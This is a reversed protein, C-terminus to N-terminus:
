AADPAAYERSQMEMLRSITRQFEFANHGGASLEAVPVAASCILKIHNDYLVDILTIFRKGENRNDDKFQPIGSLILTHFNQAIALYDGAGYPKECLDAFTCFAVGKAAKAIHLKHGKVDLDVSEAADHDTLRTFALALTSAAKADLPANYLNIEAIRKARYDQGGGFHFVHVHNKLIDIFPLFRDRQLGNKYLDDPAVNSTAVMVVGEEFLATFLRSLIMADAIDQVVFEDFCLLWAEEALEAALPKLPDALNPKSKRMIFLRHHVDQMFQHFHVRKKQPTPVAMFFLDMLMSKGRGVQGHIYLGKPQMVSGGRWRAVAGTLGSKKRPHYALLQEHLIQLEKALTEQTEDERLKGGSVMAKYKEYPGTQM